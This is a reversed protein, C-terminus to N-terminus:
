KSGNHAFNTVDDPTGYVGDTGASILLYGDPKQPEVRAQVNPNAIYRTFTGAYTADTMVKDTNDGSRVYRPTLRHDAATARLLLRNNGAVLPGNDAWHYVGREQQNSLQYPDGHDRQDVISRGAPDARYYLIPFGFGDLFMPYDRLQVAGRRASTEASIEFRTIAGDQRADSVRVKSLDVYPGGRAHRPQQADDLGYLGYYDSGSVAVRSTHTDQAWFESNRVVTKFGPTGLQDAGALAWVLLAAGTMDNIYNSTQHGNTRYPSAVDGAQSGSSIDSRSPSYASGFRTDAKFSEMATEIAALATQSATRRASNRVATTAPVLIAILVGIIAVVALLEILTFGRNRGSPQKM